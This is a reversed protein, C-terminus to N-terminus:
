IAKCHYHVTLAPEIRFDREFFLRDNDLMLDHLSWDIVASTVLGGAHECEITGVVVNNSGAQAPGGGPIMYGDGHPRLLFFNSAQQADPGVPAIAVFTDSHPIRMPELIPSLQVLEVTGSSGENTGGSRLATASLIPQSFLFVAQSIDMEWGLAQVSQVGLGDRYTLRVM